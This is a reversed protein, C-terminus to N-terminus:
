FNYRFGLLINHSAIEAEVDDFEPDATAFYRYKLDIVFNEHVAYGVGLGIQYAFVTDDEDFNSDGSGAYNFDNISVKAAGLGASIYPTFATSNTFDYYGNVLLAIGDVDGDGQFNRGGSSFEDVDNQQYAVEGEIRMDGYRYGVAGGLALGSDYSLESGGPVDAGSIDSDSMMAVGINAGLYLGDASHAASTFLAPLACCSIVLLKQKM